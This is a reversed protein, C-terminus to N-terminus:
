NPGFWPDAADHLELTGQTRLSSPPLTYV